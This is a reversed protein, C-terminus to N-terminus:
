DIFCHKMEIRCHCSIFINQWYSYMTQEFYLFSDKLQLAQESTFNEKPAYVGVEVGVRNFAKVLYKSSRHGSLDGWISDPVFLLKKGRYGVNTDTTIIESNM